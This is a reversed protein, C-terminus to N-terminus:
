ILYVKKFIDRSEAISSLIHRIKRGRMGGEREGQCCLKYHVVHQMPYLSQALLPLQIKLGVSEKKRLDIFHVFGGGCLGLVVGSSLTTEPPNTPPIKSVIEAPASTFFNNLYKLATSGQFVTYVWEL